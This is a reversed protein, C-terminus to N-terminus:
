KRKRRFYATFILPTVFLTLFTSVALGGLIAVAMPSQSSKNLPDIASLLHGAADHTFGYVRGTNDTISSVWNNADYAYDFTNGATDTVRRLRTTLGWQGLPVTKGNSEYLM